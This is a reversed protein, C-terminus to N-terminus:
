CPRDMYIDDLEALWAMRQNRADTLQELMLERQHQIFAIDREIWWLCMQIFLARLANM